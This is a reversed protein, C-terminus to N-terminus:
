FKSVLGCGLEWSEIRSAGYLNVLANYSYIPEWRRKDVTPASSAESVTEANVAEHVPLAETSVEHIIQVEKSKHDRKRVKHLLKARVGAPLVLTRLILTEENMCLLAEGDVQEAKPSLFYLTLFPFNLNKFSFKWAKVYNSTFVDVHETIERWFHM